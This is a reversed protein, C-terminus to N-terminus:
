PPKRRLALVSGVAIGVGIGIMLGLAFGSNSGRASSQGAPAKEPPVDWNTVLGYALGIVCALSVVLAIIWTSRSPRKRTAKAAALLAEVEADTPKEDV